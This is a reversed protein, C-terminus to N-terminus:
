SPNFDLVKMCDFCIVVAQYDDASFHLEGNEDVCCSKLLVQAKYYKNMVSWIYQDSNCCEVDGTFEIDPITVKTCVFQM